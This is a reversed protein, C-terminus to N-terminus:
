KLRNGNKFIIQNVAFVLHSRNSYAKFTLRHSESSRKNGSGIIERQPTHGHSRVTRSVGCFVPLLHRAASNATRTIQKTLRERDKGPLKNKKLCSQPLALVQNVLDVSAQDIAIPDTSAVVGVDRVIAADNFPM